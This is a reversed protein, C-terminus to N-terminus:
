AQRRQRRPGLPTVTCVTDRQEVVVCTREYEGHSLVVERGFLDEEPGEFYEGVSLEGSYNRGFKTPKWGFSVRGINMRDPLAAVNRYHKVDGVRPLLVGMEGIKVFWCFPELVRNIAILTEPLRLSPSEFLLDTVIDEEPRMIQERVPGVAGSEAYRYGGEGLLSFVLLYASRLWGVAVRRASPEVIRISIGRSTDWTPGRRVEAALFVKRGAVHSRLSNAHPTDSFRRFPREDPAGGPWFYTTHKTGCIDLVVRTGKGAVRDERARKVMAAAQDLDQGASENCGACTLCIESGGLTKPPAHELTVQCGKKAAERSFPKLCIPCRTNGRDFFRLRRERGKRRM